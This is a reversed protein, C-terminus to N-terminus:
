QVIDFDLQKAKVRECRRTVCWERNREEEILGCWVVGCWLAVRPLWWIKWEVEGEENDAVAASVLVGLCVLVSRSATPRRQWLTHLNNALHSSNHMNANPARIRETERMSDTANNDGLEIVMTFSSHRQCQCQGKMSEDAGSLQLEYHRGDFRADIGTNGGM